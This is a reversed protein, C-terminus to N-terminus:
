PVNEVQVQHLLNVNEGGAQGVSIEISLIGGRQTTGVTSTMNCALLQTMVTVSNGGPATPQNLNFGYSDHRVLRGTAPNCIYSVPSNIVFLRQGPSPQAFEFDIAGNNINIHQETPYLPSGPPFDPLPGSLTLDAGAPTIIGPNSAAVAHQYLTVPSTSYIVIRM